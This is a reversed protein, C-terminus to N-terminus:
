LHEQLAQLAEVAAADPDDARDAVQLQFTAVNQALVACHALHRELVPPPFARAGATNAILVRLAAQTQVRTCRARAGPKLAVRELVAVARLPMGGQLGPWWAAPDLKLQPFAPWAKAQADVPLIDDTLRPVGLTRQVARAFTSKGAGSAGVVALAAGNCHLASAHLCFVDRAALAAVLGIGLVLELALREDVAADPLWVANGDHSWAVAGCDSRLVCHTQHEELHFEREQDAIWGRGVRSRQLGDAPPLQSAM